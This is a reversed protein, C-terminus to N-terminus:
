FARGISEDSISFEDADRLDFGGGEDKGSSFHVHKHACQAVIDTVSLDELLVATEELSRGKTEVAYLWIFVTEVADWITYIIYYKWNLADFAIPNVYKNFVLSITICLGAPSVLRMVALGKARIKYPLIEITYSVLLPTFAITYFFNFLFVVTIYMFAAKENGKVPKGTAPDIDITGDHNFPVSNRYVASCITISMYFLTMGATSIIFLVRRGVCETLFSAIIATVFNFIQLIGSMLTQDFPTTIGIDNLILNFYYSILGNGSWQSFFAIAIIIRMRRLNGTSSFLDLFSTGKANAKDIAIAKKIENYEYEVLPDHHDGNAHYKILTYLAKEDQGQCILYRPSEPVFWLLFLQIVSSVAQLASPIRWSWNSGIRFSGFTGWAAVISGSFWMTNFLASLAPRHSPYALETILLPAALQVFCTGFGIMARAGIFMGANQSATQLGAGGVVILAGFLMATKRGFTDAVYPAFPIGWISGIQICFTTTLDGLIQSKKSPCVNQIANFLGLTSGHPHHFFDEWLAVSQLGNMLSGDFGNVYTSILPLFLLFNLVLLGKNHYWKGKYLLHDFSTQAHKM